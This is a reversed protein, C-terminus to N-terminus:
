RKRRAPLTRVSSKKQPKPALRELVRVFHRFIFEPEAEDPSNRGTWESRQMKSRPPSNM